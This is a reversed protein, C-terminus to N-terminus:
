SQCGRACASAAVIPVQPTVASPASGTTNVLRIERFYRSAESPMAAPTIIAALKQDSSAGAM